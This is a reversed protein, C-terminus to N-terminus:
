GTYDPSNPLTFSWYEQELDGARVIEIVIM